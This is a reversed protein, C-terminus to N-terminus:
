FCFFPLENTANRVKDHSNLLSKYHALHLVPLTTNSINFDVLRQLEEELSSDM